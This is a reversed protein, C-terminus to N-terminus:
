MAQSYLPLIPRVNLLVAPDSGVVSAAGNLTLSTVSRPVLWMALSSALDRPYTIVLASLNSLTPLVGWLSADFGINRQVQESEPVTLHLTQLKRNRLFDAIAPFLDGDVCTSGEHISFAFHRLFPLCLKGRQARFQASPTCKFLGGLSLTDLQRGQTLIDGFTQCDVPFLGSFEIKTLNRISLAEFPFGWSPNDIQLARLTPRQQHLLNVIQAPSGDRGAYSFKTLHKFELAALHDHKEFCLLSLGRLRPNFRQLIHLIPGMADCDSSIHVNRLAHLKPLANALMGTQFAVSQGRGSRPLFLRLSKVVSAFTPDVIIRSLIDATRQAQWADDDRRLASETEKKVSRGHHRDGTPPSVTFYLDLQCFLLQSAVRSLTHPVFLLVKLDRRPLFRAVERWIETSFRVGSRHHPLLREEEANPHLNLLSQAELHDPDAELAARLDAQAALHSGANFRSKARLVRANALNQASLTTVQLCSQVANEVTMRSKRKLEFNRLAYLLLEVKSENSLCQVVDHISAELILPNFVDM